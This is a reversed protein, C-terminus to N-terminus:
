VEDINEAVQIEMEIGVQKASAQVIQAMQPLEPRAIYTAMRLKIPQGNRLVKGDQVTMGSAQFHKLAEKNMVKDVIEQRSLAPQYKERQRGPLIVNIHIYKGPNTKFM